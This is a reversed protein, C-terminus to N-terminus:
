QQPAARRTCSLLVQISSRATRGLGLANNWKHCGVEKKNRGAKVCEIKKRYVVDNSSVLIRAMMSCRKKSSLERRPKDERRIVKHFWSTGYM